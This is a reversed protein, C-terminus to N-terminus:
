ALRYRRLGIPRRNAIAEPASGAMVRVMDRQVLPSLRGYFHGAMDGEGTIVAGVDVTSLAPGPLPDDPGARGLRLGAFRVAESAKLAGDTESSYVVVHRALALLPRLAGGKAFANKEIDAGTSLVTDLLWGAQSGAQVYGPRMAALAAALVQHGLSQVVLHIRVPRPPPGPRKAKAHRLAAARARDAVFASFRALFRHLGVGSMAADGADSWYAKATLAGDSPWTFAIPVLPLLRADDAIAAQVAINHAVQATVALAEDFSTQYGHVYVLIDARANGAKDLLRDEISSLLATSGLALHDPDALEERYVALSVRTPRDLAPIGAAFGTFSASGYRLEKPGQPGFGEGFGTPAKAPGTPNRNTCFHISLDGAQESAPGKGM